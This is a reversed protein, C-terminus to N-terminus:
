ECLGDLLQLFDTVSEVYYNAKTEGEGIGISIGDCGDYLDEDVRDDGAVLSPKVQRAIEYKNSSRVEIVGKGLTVASGVMRKFLYYLKEIDFDKVLKYHFACGHSKKEVVSGPTRIQYYDMVDLCEKIGKMKDKYTWKGNKRHAAGHEAFVEYESPFWEDVIEVSRGTCIIFKANKSFKNILDFLKQNPAALHPLKEIKSLTGDYDFLAVKQSNQWFEKLKDFEM